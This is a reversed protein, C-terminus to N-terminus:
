KGRRERARRVQRSEGDREAQNSRDRDRARWRSALFRSVLFALGLGLLLVVINVADINM